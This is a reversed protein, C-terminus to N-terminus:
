WVLIAVLDKGSSININEDLFLVKERVRDLHEIHTTLRSIAWSPIAIRVQSIQSTSSFPTRSIASCHESPPFTGYM